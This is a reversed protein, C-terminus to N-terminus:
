ETTVPPRPISSRYRSSRLRRPAFPEASRGVLTPFLLCVTAPWSIRATWAKEKAVDCGGLFTRCLWPDASRTQEALYDDFELSFYKVASVAPGQHGSTQASNGYPVSIRTPNGPILSILAKVNGFPHLWWDSLMSRYHTPQSM